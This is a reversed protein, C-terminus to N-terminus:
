DKRALSFKQVEDPRHYMALQDAIFTKRFTVRVPIPTLYRYSANEHAASFSAWQM